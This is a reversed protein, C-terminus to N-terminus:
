FLKINNKTLLHGHYARSITERAKMKIIKQLCESRFRTSKKCSRVAKVNSM